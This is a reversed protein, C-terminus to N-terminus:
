SSTPSSKNYQLKHISNIKYLKDITVKRRTGTFSVFSLERLSTWFYVKESLEDIAIELPWSIKELAILSIENSGDMASKMIHQASSGNDKTEVWFM